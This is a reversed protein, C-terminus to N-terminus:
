MHCIYSTKWPTLNSLNADACEYLPTAMIKHHIYSIKWISFPSSNDVECDYLPAAM